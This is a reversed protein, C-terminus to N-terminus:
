AWARRKRSHRLAGQRPICFIGPPIWRCRQTIGKIILDTYLGDEDYRLEGGWQPLYVRWTKGLQEFEVWSGKSDRGSHSAWVPKILEVGAETNLM